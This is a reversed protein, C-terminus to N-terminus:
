EVEEKKTLQAKLKTTYTAVREKNAVNNFYSIAEDLKNGIVVSPDNADVVIDTGDLRKLVNFYILRELKAKDKLNKDNYVSLFLNPKTTRINELAMHKDSDELKFVDGVIETRLVYLMNDVDEKNGIIKIFAEMTKKNLAFTKNKEEKIETESMMYFKINPSKNVLTIDNAVRGYNLCYRWWLYKTIDIPTAYRYLEEERVGTKGDEKKDLLYSALEKEDKISKEKMLKAIAVEKAPDDIDVSWGTELKLGIEPVPISLSNWYNSVAKEWDTTVTNPSLNLISPMLSKLEDTNRMITSVATRGSGIFNRDMVFVDKNIKFFYSHIEKNKIWIMRSQKIM